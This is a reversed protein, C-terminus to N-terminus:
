NQDFGKAVRLHTQKQILNSSEFAGIDCAHENGDPRRMGRQDTTIGNIHCAALPIQDVAPSDPALALTKTPGGNERLQLSYDFLTTLDNVSLIKDTGHKTLTTPDFTAGSTDLFLNYGLSMLTGVIDPGPHNPASAIISNRITVQSVQKSTKTATTTGNFNDIVDEIAIEGGGNATNGYITSYTIDIEAISAPEGTSPLFIISQNFIGGGSSGTASNGSITSNNLTLMGSNSIGGGSSGIGSVSNGSVTSSNLTLTGGNYIGGGSSGTGSVSNGSVTSSNLTLTGTNYIGGGDRAASNGSVTSNNLTLMGTNYIGGGDVTGSNGSVTSNNLTLTGTNNIDGGINGSVISNNLTLTGENEIFSHSSTNGKFALGSITVTTGSIVHISYGFQGGSISLIGAGPGQITLDKAINLEGSTLLIIGHLSTDFTIISGSPADDVAYRLSGPRSNDQLAIVRTPDPPQPPQHTLIWSTGGMSSVVILLVAIVSILFRTRSAVSAQLFAVENGSPTNRRAWARAEKLQSGRYLRDRHRGTQEWVAVDESIAQQLHVDERTEGLWDALRKWERIVAEHSVEVTAVGSVTDTTLLRATTFARTVEEMIVTEKPNSLLLETRTIRRRTTDQVTAGPDILRLFLIRALKRHEESHLSLYTVEAHNAVAGKVGGIERYAQLTLQHVNRRQFLQDLTFELLPLAGVRGQVEFLLDSVLDGEFTLQVDPLGAPREIAERLGKLDMPLVFSNHAEILQFLDPYHMPRDYFDARLTLILITPGQTESVATVLLDLFQQREEETTTQTFVEEFQDIFLAVRTETPKGLSSALLHVGYTSDDDLDERITKLSRDPLRLAFALALAEIPHGGPIIPDLYVWHQSGPLGDAQLRPLLGAMVVSSKGSGSPGVVALLRESQAHKENATLSRNLTEVLEDILADRGFFDHRDEGHFAKLGKYPNRPEISPEASENTTTISVAAENSALWTEAVMAVIEDFVRHDSLKRADITAFLEGCDPPLCEQWDEGDIWVACIPSRYIGAIQLAKQVLRSSRAEPSAILLVTQATRIAEQLAQRQNEVGHRRLTRSSIVTIERAQLHAKLRTVFEIEADVYAAALFVCPSTSPALPKTFDGILGLEEPTKDLVSCLRERFYASPVTIGREWRSVTEFDTGLAEALDSQTWGKLHRARRLRENPINEEFLM